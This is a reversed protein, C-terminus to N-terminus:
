CTCGIPWATVEWTARRAQGAYHRLLKDGCFATRRGFMLNFLEPDTIAHAKGIFTINYERLVRRLQAQDYSDARAKVAM